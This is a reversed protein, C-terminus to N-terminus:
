PQEGTVKIIAASAKAYADYGRQAAKEAEEEGNCSYCWPERCKDGRCGIAMTATFPMIEKLAELLENREQILKISMIRAAVQVCSEEPVNQTGTVRAEIARWTPEYEPWDSEVVVCDLPEKGKLRRQEAYERALRHIEDGKLSNGLDAVKFVIYRDERKFNNSM